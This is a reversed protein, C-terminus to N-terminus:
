GVYIVIAKVFEQESLKKKVVKDFEEDSLNEYEEECALDEVIREECDDEDIWMDGYLTLTDICCRADVQNYSWEGCWAEEGAFILLPLDPNDLILQRLEGTDELSLNFRSKDVIM